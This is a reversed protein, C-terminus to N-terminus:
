HRLHYPHKRIITLARYMQEAAVVVALEHPLTMPGFSWRLDPKVQDLNEKSFGDPGGIVIDLIRTSAQTRNLFEALQMSSLERSSYGNDCIWIKQGAQKEKIDFGLTKCPVFKRIRGSYEEYLAKAPKLKFAQNLSGKQLWVLRFQIRM